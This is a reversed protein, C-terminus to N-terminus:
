WKYDKKGQLEKRKFRQREDDVKDMRNEVSPKKRQEKVEKVREGRLKVKARGYRMKYIKKRSDM